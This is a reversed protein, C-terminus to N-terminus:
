VSDRRWGTSLLFYPSLKTKILGKVAMQAQLTDPFGFLQAACLVCFSTGCFKLFERKTLYPEPIDEDKRTNAIHVVTSHDPSPKIM